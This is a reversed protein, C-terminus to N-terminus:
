KDEDSLWSNKKDYGDLNSLIQPVTTVSGDLLLVNRIVPRM